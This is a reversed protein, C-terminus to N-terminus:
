ACRAMSDESREVETKPTRELQQVQIEVIM